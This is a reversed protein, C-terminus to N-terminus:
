PAKPGRFPRGEERRRVLVEQTFSAAHTGHEDHITGLVLGRADANSLPEIHVLLWGGPDIDLRHFWISHDLSTMMGAEFDGLGAAAAFGTRMDAVFALLCAVDSPTAGERPETSRFWLTVDGQGEGTPHGITRIEMPLDPFGYGTEEHPLDDPHAASPMPRSRVPGDEPRHLATSLTFVVRGEQTAEVNRYAFSRGDRVREVEMVLKQDRGGSTVFYAHLSSPRLADDVTMAAARLAQAAVQGGFLNPRSVYDPIPADFRDDGLPGLDLLEAFTTV